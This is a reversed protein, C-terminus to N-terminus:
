LVIFYMLCICLAFLGTNIKLKNEVANCERWIKCGVISLNWSTDISCREVFVWNELFPHLAKVVTSPCLFFHKIPFVLVRFIYEVFYAGILYCIYFMYMFTDESRCVFM